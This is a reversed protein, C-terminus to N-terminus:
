SGIMNVANLSVGEPLKDKSIRILSRVFTEGTYEEPFDEGFVPIVEITLLQDEGQGKEPLTISKIKFGDAASKRNGISVCIFYEMPTEQIVFGGPVSHQYDAYKVEIEAPLDRSGNWEWNWSSDSANKSYIVQEFPIDRPDRHIDVEETVSVAQVGMDKDDFSCGSQFGLVTILLFVLCLEKLM